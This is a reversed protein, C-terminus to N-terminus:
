VFEEQGWGKEYNKKHGQLLKQQSESSYKTNNEWMCQKLDIM